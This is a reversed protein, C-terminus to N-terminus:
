DIDSCDKNELGELDFCSQIPKSFHGEYELLMNKAILLRPKDLLTKNRFYTILVIDQGYIDEYFRGNKEWIEFHSSKIYLPKTPTVGYQPLNKLALDLQYSLSDVRLHKISNSHTMQQIVHYKNLYKDQYCILPHQVNVNSESAREAYLARFKPKILGFKLGTNQKTTSLVIRTINKM